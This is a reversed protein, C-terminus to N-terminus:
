ECWTGRLGGTYERALNSEIMKKAVDTGDLLFIDGDVRGGYKDWVINKVMVKDSSSLIKILEDKAKYALSKENDCDGRIEPTDIGRVRVSVKNLPYPLACLDSYITDGDYVGRVPMVLDAASASTLTLTLLVLSLFKM